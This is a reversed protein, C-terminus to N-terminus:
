VVELKLIEEICGRPIVIMDMSKWEPDTYWGSKLWLNKKNVREVCGIHVAEIPEQPEEVSLDTRIDMWKVFIYDGRKM